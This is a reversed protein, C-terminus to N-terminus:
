VAKLWIKVWNAGGIGLIGVVAKIAKDTQKMQQNTEQQSDSLEVSIRNM